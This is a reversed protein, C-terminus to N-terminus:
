DRFKSLLLLNLTDLDKIIYMFLDQTSINLKHSLKEVLANVLSTNNLEIAEVLAYYMVAGSNTDNLLENLLEYYEQSVVYQVIVDLINLVSFRTKPHCILLRYIAESLSSCNHLYSLLAEEDITVFRNDLFYKLIKTEKQHLAEIITGFGITSLDIHLTRIFYEITSLDSTHIVSKLLADIDIENTIFRGDDILVEIMSINGSLGAQQIIRLKNLSPNIRENSLLLMAVKFNSTRFANILPANNNISPDVGSMMSIKVIIPNSSMLGRQIKRQLSTLKSWEKKQSRTSIDMEEHRPSEVVFYDYVDKWKYGSFNPLTKMGLLKKVMHKYSYDDIQVINM